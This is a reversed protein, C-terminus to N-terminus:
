CPQHSSYILDPLFVQGPFKIIPVERRREVTPNLNYSTPLGKLFKLICSTFIEPTPPALRLASALGSHVWTPPMVFALVVTQEPRPPDWTIGYLLRPRLQSQGFGAEKGTEQWRRGCRSSSPWRSLGQERNGRLGRLWPGSKGAWCFFWWAVTVSPARLWPMQLDSFFCLLVYISLLVCVSAWMGTVCRCVFHLCSCVNKCMWISMYVFYLCCM